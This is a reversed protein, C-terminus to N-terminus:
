LIAYVGMIRRMEGERTLGKASLTHDSLQHLQNLARMQANAEALMIIFRSVARLPALLIAPSRGPSKRYASAITAM